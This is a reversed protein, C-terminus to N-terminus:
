PTPATQLLQEIAKVKNGHNIGRSAEIASGIATRIGQLNFSSGVAEGVVKQTVGKRFQGQLSTAAQTGFTDELADAFAILTIMDDTSQGGTQKVVADLDDLLRLLDGRNPSNSLVRRMVMGARMQAIEGGDNVKKGVLTSVDDTLQALRAYQTNVANYNAFKADLTGDLSSRFNKLIREAQGTLGTTTKGFDVQNDIFRKLQHGTYADDLGNM